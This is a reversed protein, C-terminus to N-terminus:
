GTISAQFQTSEFIVQNSKHRVTDPVSMGHQRLLRFRQDWEANNTTLM